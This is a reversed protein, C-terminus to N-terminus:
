KLESLILNSEKNIRQLARRVKSDAKHASKSPPTVVKPERGQDGAKDSDAATLLAELGTTAETIADTLQKLSSVANTILTRNKGSLVRGEKLETNEAQLDKLSKGEDGDDEGNADLVDSMKTALEELQDVLPEIETMLDKKVVAKETDAARETLRCAFLKVNGDEFEITKIEGECKIDSKVLHFVFSKDSEEKSVFKYHHENVWAEAATEDYKSKLVEIRIASLTENQKEVWSKIEVNKETTVADALSKLRQASPNAPVAVFSVELLENRGMDGDKVPGHPLFGVSVTNLVEEKVMQFVTKSLETIEHFVPDFLLSKGEIRVNTALGVINEVLYDHNVLLVPNQMFNVLDWSSIPIVEGARDLTEDSAVFTIKDGSKQLKAQIFQKEKKM